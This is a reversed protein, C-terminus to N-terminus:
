PRIMGKLSVASCCIVSSSAGEYFRRTPGSRATIRILRHHVLRVSKPNSLLWRRSPLYRSLLTPHRLSQSCKRITRSALRLPQEAPSSRVQSLYWPLQRRIRQRLNKNKSKLLWSGRCIKVNVKGEFVHNGDGDDDRRCGFSSMRTRRM